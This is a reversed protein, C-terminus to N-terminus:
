FSQHKIVFYTKVRTPIKLTKLTLDDPIRIAFSIGKNLKVRRLFLVIAESVSLGLDALLPEIENKFFPEIRAKVRTTRM